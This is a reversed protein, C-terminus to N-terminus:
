RALGLRAEIGELREAYAASDIDRAWMVIADEGTEAYYNKRVGVPAFGFRRYVVQAPANGVRVELTLHRVGLEPAARALDLLLLTGIGRQQWGTDVTLTTVHGEDGVVMLGSYGVVMPGIVAVTYRRSTRQAMESLFLSASWPRPYVDEEIRVVPRLHRRRLPLIRVAELVDEAREHGGAPGDGDIGEPPLTGGAGRVM